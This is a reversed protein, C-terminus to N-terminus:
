MEFEDDDVYGLEYDRTWNRSKLEVAPKPKGGKKNKTITLGLTKRKEVEAEKNLKKMREYRDFETEKKSM